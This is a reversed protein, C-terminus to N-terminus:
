ALDTLLKKDFQEVNQLSVLAAKLVARVPAGMTVGVAADLADLCTGLGRETGFKALGTCGADYPGRMMFLNSQEDGYFLELLLGGFNMAEGLKKDESLLASMGFDIYKATYKGGTEARVMFNDAKLDNHQITSHICQLGKILDIIVPKLVREVGKNKKGFALGTEDFKEMVIYMNAKKGVEKTWSDKFNAVYNPCTKTLTTQMAVENKMETMKVSELGDTPVVKVVSSGQDKKLLTNWFGKRDSTFVTGHAGRGVETSPRTWDDPGAVSEAEALAERLGAEAEAEAEAVHMQKQKHHRRVISMGESFAVVSLLAFLV